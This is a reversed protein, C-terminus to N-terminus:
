MCVCVRVRCACACPVCVSVHVCVCVRVQDKLIDLCIAGSQSSVNPHWVQLSPPSASAAANSVYMYM